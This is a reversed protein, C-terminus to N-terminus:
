ARYGGWPPYGVLRSLDSYKKSRVSASLVCILEEAEKRARINNERTNHRIYELTKLAKIYAQLDPINEFRTKIIEGETLHIQMAKAIEIAIEDQLKFIDKLERDYRESWM